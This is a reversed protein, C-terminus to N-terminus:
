VMMPTSLDHLGDWVGNGNSSPSEWDYYKGQNM